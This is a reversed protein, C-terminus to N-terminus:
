PLCNDMEFKMGIIMKGRLLLSQSFYPQSAHLAREKGREISLGPFVVAADPNIVICCGVKGVRLSQSGESEGVVAGRHVQM